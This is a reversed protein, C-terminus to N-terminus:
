LFCSWAWDGTNHKEKGHRYKHCMNIWNLMIKNINKQKFVEKDDDTYVGNSKIKDEVITLLKDISGENLRNFKKDRILSLAFTEVCICLERIPSEKNRKKYLEDLVGSFMILNSSYKPKNLINLTCETLQQFEKDPYFRVCGNNYLVYCMSEESFIRNITKIYKELRHSHKSQLFANYVITIFDLIAAVNQSDAFTVEIFYGYTFGRPELDIGMDTRCYKYVALWCGDNVFDELYKLIRKRFKPKDEHRDTDNSYHKSFLKKDNM